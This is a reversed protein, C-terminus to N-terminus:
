RTFSLHPVLRLVVAKALRLVHGRQRAGLAWYWLRASAVDEWTPPECGSRLYLVKRKTSSDTCIVWTPHNRTLTMYIMNIGM